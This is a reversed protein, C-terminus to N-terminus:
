NFLGSVAHICEVTAEPHVYMNMAQTWIQNFYLSLHYEFDVILTVCNPSQVDTRVEHSKESFQLVCLDM